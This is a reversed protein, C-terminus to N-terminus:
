ICSDCIECAKKKAYGRVYEKVKNMFRRGERWKRCKWFEDINQELFERKNEGDDSGEVYGMLLEIGARKQIWAKSFQGVFDENVRFNYKAPMKMFNLVIGLYKTDIGEYRELLLSKFLGGDRNSDNRNRGMNNRRKDDSDSGDDMGNDDSDKSDSDDKIGDSTAVYRAKVIRRVKEYEGEKQLGEILSVLVNSEDDFKSLDMRRLLKNANNGHRLFAQIFYNGKEDLSLKMIDGKIRQYIEERNGRSAIEPLAEYLFSVELIHSFNLRKEVIERILSQSLACRLFVTITAWEYDQDLSPVKGIFIKTIEKIKGDRYSSRDSAEKVNGDENTGVRPKYKIVDSSRCRMSGSSNIKKGTMLMFAERIVHTANENQLCRGFDIWELVERFSIENFNSATAEKGQADGRCPATSEGNQADDAAERNSAAENVTAVNYVCEFLRQFIREIIRSGLKKYILNKDLIALFAVLLDATSLSILTELSTSSTPSKALETEFGRLETYINKVVAPDAAMGFDLSNLYREIEQLKKSSERPNSGLFNAELSQGHAQANPLKDNLGSSSNATGNSVSPKRDSAPDRKRDSAPDRKRDSAPAHKKGTNSSRM